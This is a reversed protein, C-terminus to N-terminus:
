GIEMIVATFNDQKPNQGALVEQELREAAEKASKTENLIRAIAPEPVTNFVGDSMLLLMDGRQAELRKRSGDILKLEGMGIFSTLGKRKPDRSVDAFGIEGNVAKALLDTEYTHERNLLMLTEGRYLYIHSDGISLWQFFGEEVLVAILTSGCKYRKEEGLMQNVERNAHAAMEYLRNETDGRRLRAADQLMTMVIKQSVKDGDALGGMGDAVVALTGGDFETIGLSDQQGSRRGINHIKGIREGPASVAAPKAQTEAVTQMNEPMSRKEEAMRQKKGSRKGLVYAAAAAAAILVGATGLVAAPSIRSWILTEEEETIRETNMEAGGIIGDITEQLGTQTSEEAPAGVPAPEAQPLEPVATEPQQTSDQAGTEEQERRIAEAADNQEESMIQVINLKENAQRNSRMGIM